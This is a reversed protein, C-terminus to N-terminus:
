HNSFWTSLTGFLGEKLLPCTVTWRLRERPPGQRCGPGPGGGSLGSAAREQRQGLSAAESQDTSM